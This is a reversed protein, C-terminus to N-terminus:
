LILMLERIIKSAVATSVGTPDYDPALEVVDAGVINLSDLKQLIDLMDTFSIGGPEPTGTGPFISPDLIDLDITVYVPKDKIKQVVEDLKDYGYKNMFTHGEKEAWYFEEKLGSRIGFQYIRGDGLFDWVQKIVTAHSLEEGMYDGRLDTHADFHLVVLDPHEEFVASIVPLSVLHEGGIMLPKKQHKVVHQAYEKITDMVAYKNGFILDIDGADHIKRDELDRDLYPSYTELGYSDIRIKNPAFRSGPRFSCTGDFPAGFIIIESEEFSKECGIFCYRNFLEM